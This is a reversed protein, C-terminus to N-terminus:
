VIKKVKKGKVLSGASNTKAYKNGGQHGKQKANKRARQRPKRKRRDPTNTECFGEVKGGGM